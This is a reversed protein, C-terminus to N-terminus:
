KRSMIMIASMIKQAAANVGLVLIMIMLLLM